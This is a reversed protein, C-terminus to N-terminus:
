KFRSMRALSDFKQFRKQDIAGNPAARAGSPPIAAFCTGHAPAAMVGDLDHDYVANEQRHDRRGIWTLDSESDESL